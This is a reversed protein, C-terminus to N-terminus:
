DAVLASSHGALAASLECFDDLLVHPAAAQLASAPRYGGTFGIAIAGAALTESIDYETDGVYIVQGGSEQRLRAIETAKSAVSGRVFALLKAIGLFRADTEVV